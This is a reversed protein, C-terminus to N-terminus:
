PMGSGQQQANHHQQEWQRDRELLHRRALAQRRTALGQTLRKLQAQCCRQRWIFSGSVIANCRLLMSVGPGTHRDSIGHCIWTETSGPQGQRAARGLLQRDMRGSENIQCCIVHLGGARISPEDLEIDTGRGAMRTSVTIAGQRGAQAVIDAEHQDHRANLVQHPLGANQLHASVAESDAVTDTGILVPQGQRHRITVAEVVAQWRQEPSEFVRLGLDQRRSPQRPPLTVISLGYVVKFEARSEVLTGSLGALHWYRRFFRQFTTQALTQTPASAQCGEKLEILTQLGQSWVRGEALRGTLTDLLEIGGERVVYHQDLKLLHLASLAQEVLDRQLRQRRWPGGLNETLAQLKAMGSESLRARLGQGAAADEGWRMAQALKLAQWWLARRQGQAAPTLAEASSIILPVVAEDLLISDAEDLLAMCLGRLVPAEVLTGGLHDRLHDFAVEKATTYVIDQQYIAQREPPAMGPQVHGVRLALHQWLLTLAQSDREALYDNATIVHVPVGAMAAVAAATAMALSKGEGTPLEVLRQDLLMAAALLQQDSLRRGTTHEIAVAVCALAPILAQAAWGHRRLMQRAQSLREPWGNQPERKLADIAQRVDTLWSQSARMVWAASMSPALRGMTRVTWKPDQSWVSGPREAADGAGQGAVQQPYAGWRPGPRPLANPARSM